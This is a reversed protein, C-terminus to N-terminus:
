NAIKEDTTIKQSSEANKIYEIVHELANEQEVVVDPMTGHIDHEYSDYEYMRAFSITSNIESHPLKYIVIDGFCVSMGGSEEGFITGMNFKKFTWSLSGASSFTKHSILLFVNGTFRLPNPRLPILDFNDITKIGNPTKSLDNGFNELALKKQLNSYRVIIKSFQQFPVPSIYQFLEDGIKSDGGGNTRMDIILSRIDKKKLESFMSDAFVIFKDLNSFSNFEMLAINNEILEFSYPSQCSELDKANIHLFDNYPIAKLVCEFGKAGDSFQITFEKSPYLMYLFHVFDRDVKSLRFFPREGSCYQLMEAIIEKYYQGNIRVIKTGEKLDLDKYNFDNTTYITSDNTNITVHLPFVFNNKQELENKPFYLQTHGDGLLTTLPQVYKYFDIHSISDDPLEKRIKKLSKNFSNENCEFFLNPHIEKMASVFSDLDFIAQQYSIKFNTQAHISLCNYLIFFLVFCQRFM